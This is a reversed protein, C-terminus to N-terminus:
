TSVHGFLTFAMVNEMRVGKETALQTAADSPPGVQVVAREGNDALSKVCIVASDGESICDVAATLTGSTAERIQQVAADTGRYDVVVDAGHQKVLEFNKPSCTSIVSYGAFKALQVAFLGVSSSGGYVLVWTSKRTEKSTAATSDLPYALHLINFLSQAATALTATVGAAERLSVAKPVSWVLDSEARLYEAFPSFRMLHVTERRPYLLSTGAFAGKDPSNGGHVMGAVLNGIKKESDALDEGVAVVVGAFDFGHIANPPSM